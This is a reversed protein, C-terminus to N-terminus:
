VRRGQVREREQVTKPKNLLFTVFPSLETGRALYLTERPTEFHYEINGM